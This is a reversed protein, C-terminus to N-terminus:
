AHNKGLYARVVAPDSMVAQPEGDALLGGRDLVVVRTALQNVVRLLHEVIVITVGSEHIRRVVRVADDIEAPNLGALAEDLLLVTPSTALARAMELLQRQHLNIDSPYADALRGLGVFELHRLAETRAAALPRPQRGFMLAMAVNDRVTMSEFPRPIQYTRAVGLHALTHPALRHAERGGVRISGRTPRLAGSLLNVLTTKGSGNPGVLGVLEGRRVRLDIGDLARVGGFHRALDRCEVVVPPGDDPNPAAPGTAGAAPRAAPAEGAAAPARDASSPPGAASAPAEAAPARVPGDPAVPAPAADVPASTPEAPAAAEDTAAPPLPPAPAPRSGAPLWRRPWFAVLVAALMAAAIWDLLGGWVRTVALVLLTAVGALLTARPRARLQAWLGAPAFIVMVALLGGFIILRWQEVAGGILRDQILVIVAAGIMPGLWHTRGGLVSMVIVFLPIQLVFVTDVEVFGYQLAWASGAVGGIAGTAGIALMKWRFTAVGLGEAVDENDRVAALAWGFRSHWIAYAAAVAAVAIVLMVLYLFEQFRLAEPLEPVPVVIGQGGDIEPSLRATAALIFPVALTLLAFTAGRFAGLRFALAGIGLALLTSLVVAVPLTAYFSWGHRGTLVATSYVGVGVFAGQGFSFYGSYGSLINWSTAQAGWFFLTSLLTLYFLSGGLPELVLALSALALLVLPFGILGRWQAALGTRRVVAAGRGAVATGRAATGTM